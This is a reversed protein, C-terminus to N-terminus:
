GKEDSTPPRSAKQPGDPERPTSRARHAVERRHIRIVKGGDSKSPAPQHTSPPKHWEILDTPHAMHTSIDISKSDCTVTPAMTHEHPGTKRWTTSHTTIM